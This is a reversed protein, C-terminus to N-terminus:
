RWTSLALSCVKAHPLCRLAASATAGSAVVNDIIYIPFEDPVRPAGGRLYMRIPTPPYGEKKEMYCSPHEECALCDRVPRAPNLSHLREAVMMMQEARGEHSPMPVIACEDPLMLDFLRAARDICDADGDRVGHALMRLWGEYRGFWVIRDSVTM